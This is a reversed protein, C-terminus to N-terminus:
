AGGGSARAAPTEAAPAEPEVPRTRQVFERVQEIAQESEEEAPVWKAYKVLDYRAFFRSMEDRMPVRGARMSALIETTTQEVADFEFRREMYRKLIESLAYYFRKAQGDALWERWPLADLSALAEDWPSLLPADAEEGHRLRRYLRRALLALAVLLLLAAPVLWLALNPFDEAPRLPRVDKMAPPMVSAVTVALTDTRLTDTRDRGSLLFVFGPVVHRGPQFCALKVRYTTEDSEGRRRTGHKESVVMFTGLSDLLPGTALTPHAAKLVLTVEFPDGVTLRAPAALRATVAPLGNPPVTLLLALVSTALTM